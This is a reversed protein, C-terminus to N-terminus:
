TTWYQGIFRAHDHNILITIKIYLTNECFKQLDIDGISRVVANDLSRKPNCGPFRCSLVTTRDKVFFLTTDFALVARVKLPLSGLFEVLGFTLLAQLAKSENTSAAAKKDAATHMAQARALAKDADHVRQVRQVTDEEAAQKDKLQLAKKAAVKKKLKAQAEILQQQKTKTQGSSSSGELSEVQQQQQEQQQESSQVQQKLDSDDSPDHLLDQQM